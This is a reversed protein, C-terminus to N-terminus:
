PKVGIELLKGAQAAQDAKLADVILKADVYIAGDGGLCCGQVDGFCFTSGSPRIRCAPYILVSGDIQGLAEIQAKDRQIAALADSAALVQAVTIDAARASRPTVGISGVFALM